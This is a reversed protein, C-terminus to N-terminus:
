RFLWHAATRLRHKTCYSTHPPRLIAMRAKPNTKVTSIAVPPSYLFVRSFAQSLMSTNTVQTIENVQTQPITPSISARTGAAVALVIARSMGKLHRKSVNVQAAPLSHDRHLSEHSSGGDSAAPRTPRLTPLWSSHRNTLIADVTQNGKRPLRLDSGIAPIEGPTSITQPSGM